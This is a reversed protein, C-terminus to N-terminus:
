ATAPLRSPFCLVADTIPKCAATSQSQLILLFSPLPKAKARV